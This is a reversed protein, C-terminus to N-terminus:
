EAEINQQDIAGTKNNISDGIVNPEGAFGSKYNGKVKFLQMYHTKCYVKGDNSTFNGPKLVSKCHLCRFCPKHYAKGNVMIRETAYATKECVACKPDM